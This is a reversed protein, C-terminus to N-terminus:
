YLLILPKDGMESPPQLMCKYNHGTKEGTLITSKKKKGPMVDVDTFSYKGLSM